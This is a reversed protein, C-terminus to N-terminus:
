TIKHVRQRYNLKNKTRVMMVLGTGTRHSISSMPHMELGIDDNVDINMTNVALIKRGYPQVFRMIVCLRKMFIPLM